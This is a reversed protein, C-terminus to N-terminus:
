LVRNGNDNRSIRYRGNMSYGECKSGVDCESSSRLGIWRFADKKNNRRPKKVAPKPEDPREMFDIPTVETSDDM